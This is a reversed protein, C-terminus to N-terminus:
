SISVLLDPCPPLTWRTVSRASWVIGAASAPVSAHDAHSVVRV